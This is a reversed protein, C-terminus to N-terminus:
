NKWPEKTLIEIINSKVALCVARPMYPMLPAICYNGARRLSVESKPNATLAIAEFREKVIKTLVENRGKLPAIIFESDTM